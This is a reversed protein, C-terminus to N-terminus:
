ELNTTLRLVLFTPRRVKSKIKWTIKVIRLKKCETHVKPDTQWNRSFLGSPNQNPNCQIQLDAQNFSVGEGYQTEQGIPLAYIMIKWDEIERLLYKTIKLTCEKM